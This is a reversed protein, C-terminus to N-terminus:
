IDISFDFLSLYLLFRKAEQQRYNAGTEVSYFGTTLKIPWMKLSVGYSVYGESLGGMISILPLSLEAGFHLQRAFDVPGFLPHLDASLTYDIIGFDQKFATGFHLSMDQNPVESNGEYERFRTTGIDQISLGATFHSFGSSAGYEIGADYGWAKGKAYGLAEKLATIDSAGSSIKNLLKTGFLDFQNSLGDRNIHKVALGVSLRNGSSTTSKAGKKGKTTLAGSGVNFAFGTVFGRDYRYDIDLVPNVANRLIMSTRDNLFLTFAFQAMKVTPYASVQFYIPVDMIREAILPASNSPFNNFRDTDELLNSLGFNPDLPTASVSKNRGLAAVNYFLTYEDDAVATFADGMLLARPSRGIYDVELSYASNILIFFIFLFKNIM